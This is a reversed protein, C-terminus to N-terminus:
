ARDVRCAFCGHKAYHLHLYSVKDLRLLQEISGELESGQCLAADVIMGCDDFARASITRRRLLPPIEGVRDYSHVADELVFIAHSARYPSRAPQHEYNLLLLREGPEADRLEIRDPFADRKDAIVRRANLARLADDTLGVYPEIEHLELGRIRFTM